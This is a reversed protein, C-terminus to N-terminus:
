KGGSRSFEIFDTSPIKDIGQQRLMTIIQGTHYTQHNFIHILVEYLPQKFAIKKSNRYEFVHQLRNESAEEILKVWGDSNRLIEDSLGKLDMKFDESLPMVPEQLHIRQWWVFNANQIHFLTPLIGGFSDKMDKICVEEPLQALRKLLQRNAWQRYAAMQLLINKM